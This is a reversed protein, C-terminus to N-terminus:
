ADLRELLETLEEMVTHFDRFKWRIVFDMDDDDEDLTIDIDHKVDMEKKFDVLTMYMLM